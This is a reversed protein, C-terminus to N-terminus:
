SVARDLHVSGAALFAPPTNPAVEYRGTSGPYILAQFAPRCNLRDIPDTAEANGIDFRMASLAAVKGGASFGMVGIKATDVGWEKARSRVTHIARQMDALLLSFTAIRM